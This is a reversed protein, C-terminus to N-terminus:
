GPMQEFGDIDMHEPTSVIGLLEKMYVAAVAELHGFAIAFAALGLCLGWDRTRMRSQRAMRRGAVPRFPPM